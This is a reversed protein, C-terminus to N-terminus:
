KNKKSVSIGVESTVTKMRQQTHDCVLKGSYKGVSTRPQNGDTAPMCLPGIRELRENRAVIEEDVNAEVSLNSLREGAEHRDMSSVTMEVVM